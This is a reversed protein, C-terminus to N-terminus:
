AVPLSLSESNISDNFSTNISSYLGQESRDSILENSTLVIDENVFEIIGGDFKLETKKSKKVTLDNITIKIGKNLFALERM